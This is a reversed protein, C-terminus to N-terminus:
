RDFITEKTACIKDAMCLIWAEKSKPYEKLNLPWMHSKIAQQAKEDIDFYQLANKCAINPHTFGHLEFFSNGVKTKHWDYLYFDHLLSCKMLEDKNANLHLKRDLMYATQAVTLCHEYVSIQGHAVYNQMEKFKPNEVVYEILQNFEKKEEQNLKM